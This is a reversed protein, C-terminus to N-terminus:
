LFNFWTHTRLTYGYKEFLEKLEKTNLTIKYSSMTSQDKIRLEAPLINKWSKLLNVSNRENGVEITVIAKTIKVSKRNNNIFEHLERLADEVNAIADCSYDNRYSLIKVYNPIEGSFEKFIDRIIESSIKMVDPYYGEAIDDSYIIKDLIEKVKVLMRRLYERYFATGLNKLIKKGKGEFATKDIESSLAADLAFFVMRKRLKEDPRLVDNSAFVIIPMNELQRSECREPDKILGRLQAVYKNDIEDIFIPLGKIGCTQLQDVRSKGCDCAKLNYIDNKGTMLKLAANVIFTKGSNSTESAILLFLPLSNTSVNRIKATCRIKAFFPSCLCVNLVKFHTSKLKEHDGLFNDYNSFLYTIQEINKRIEEASPNLDLEKNNLFAKQELYDFTLSPYNETVDRISLKKALIQKQNHEIKVLHKPLIKVLGENSKFKCEKLLALYDEKLKEHDITYKINELCINDEHYHQLVITEGTEKIKRLMSTDKLPDTEDDADNSGKSKSSVVPKIIDSSNAWATEFEESYVEYAYDTDDCTINEVIDNNWAKGTFNASATIVRTKSDDSQLLYVKRHDILFKPTRVEINESEMMSSLNQFKKILKPVEANNALVEALFEHYTQDKEVLFNGGIIIEARDFKSIISNIFSLSYSFTIVKLTNFGSFLEDVSSYCVDKLETQHIKLLNTDSKNNVEENVFTFNSNDAFLDTQQEM